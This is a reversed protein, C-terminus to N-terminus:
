RPRRLSPRTLAEKPSMGKLIRQRVMPLRVGYDECWESLTKTVGDINILRNGRRNRMQTKPLAWRCNGPEYGRNNDIRDLSHRSSTRPGMDEYFAEFSYSWRDCVAIGRGGYRDWQPHSPSLCRRRMSFWAQYEPTGCMGHRRNAHGQAITRDIKLCGCSQTKGERLLSGRRVVTAGCDCRCEWMSDIHKTSRRHMHDFQVVVLRGFRNGTLNLRLSHKM